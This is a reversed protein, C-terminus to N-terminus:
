PRRASSASNKASSPSYSTTRRSLCMFTSRVARASVLQRLLRRLRDRLTGALDPLRKGAPRTRPPALIRYATERASSRFGPCRSCQRRVHGHRLSTKHQSRRRFDASHRYRVNHDYRFPAERTGDAPLRGGNHCAPCLRRLIVGKRPLHPRHHTQSVPRHVVRAHVRSRDEHVRIATDRHIRNVAVTERRRARARNRPDARHLTLLLLRSVATNRWGPIHGAQAEDHVDYRCTWVAMFMFQRSIIYYSDDYKWKSYAYSASYVMITGFALLVLVIVLSSTTTDRTRPTGSACSRTTRLASSTSSGRSPEATPSKRSRSKEPVSQPRSPHQRPIGDSKRRSVRSCPREAKSLARRVSNNHSRRATRRSASGTGTDATGTRTEAPAAAQGNRHSYNGRPATNQTRNDARDQRDNRYGGTNNM